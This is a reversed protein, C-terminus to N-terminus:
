AARSGGRAARGAARGAAALLRGIQRFDDALSRSEVGVLLVGRRMLFLNVLGSVASFVMSALVSAGLRPTGGITHVVFELGHTLVALVAVITLSAAWPPEARRFTQVIAGAFGAVALRLPVDLSLARLAAPLGATLNVTFFIAGRFVASLVAAKWNWHRILREVPHRALQGFAEFVTM